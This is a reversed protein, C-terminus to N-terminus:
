RVIFDEQLRRFYFSRWYSKLLLAAYMMDADSLDKHHKRNLRFAWGYVAQEVHYSVIPQKRIFSRRTIFTYGAPANLALNGTHGTAPLDAFMLLAQTSDERQFKYCRIWALRSLAHKTSPSPAVLARMLVHCSELMAPSAEVMWDALPPRMHETLVFQVHKRAADSFCVLFEVIQVRGDALASIVMSTLLENYIVRTEKSFVPLVKSRDMEHYSKHVVTGLVDALDVEHLSGIDMSVYFADIMTELGRSSLRKGLTRLYNPLILSARYEWSGQLFRVILDDSVYELWPLFTEEVAFLRPRVWLIKGMLGHEGHRHFSDIMIRLYVNNVHKGSLNKEHILYLVTDELDPITSVMIMSNRKSTEHQVVVDIFPQASAPDHKFEQIIDKLSVCHREPSWHAGISLLTAMILVNRAKLALQLSHEGKENRCIKIPEELSTPFRFPLIHPTAGHVLLRTATNVKGNSCAHFLADLLLPHHKSTSKKFIKDLVMEMAKTNGASACINVLNEYMVTGGLTRVHRQSSSRPDLAWLAAFVGNCHCEAALALASKGQADALHLMGVYGGCLIEAARTHNLAAALHLLSSDTGHCPMKLVESLLKPSRKVHEITINLLPIHNNVVAFELQRQHHAKGATNTTTWSQLDADHALCLDSFDPYHPDAEVIHENHTLWHTCMYRHMATDVVVNMRRAPIPFAIPSLAHKRPSRLKGFTALRGLTSELLTANLSPDVYQTTYQVLANRSHHHRAYALCIRGCWLNDEIESLAYRQLWTPLREKELLFQKVTSHAFEVVGRASSLVLLNACYDVVSTNLVMSQKVPIDEPEVNALERLERDTLPRKAFAVWKFARPAITSSRNDNTEEVRSLCRM